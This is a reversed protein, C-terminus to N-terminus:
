AQGQEGTGPCPGPAQKEDTGAYADRRKIMQVYEQGIIPGDKERIGSARVAICAAALCQLVRFWGPGSVVPLGFLFAVPLATYWRCLVYKAATNWGTLRLRVSLDLTTGIGDLDPAVPFRSWFRGVVRCAARWADVVM